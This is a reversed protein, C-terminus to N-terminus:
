DTPSPQVSNGAKACAARYEEYAKRERQDTRKIYERLAMVETGLLMAVLESDDFPLQEPDLGLPPLEREPAVYIPCAPPDAKGLQVRVDTSCGSLILLMAALVIRSM